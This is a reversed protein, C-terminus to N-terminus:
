KNLLILKRFSALFMVKKSKGDMTYPNAEDM